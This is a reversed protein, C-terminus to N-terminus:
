TKWRSLRRSGLREPPLTGPVPSWRVDWRWIKVTFSVGYLITLRPEKTLMDDGVRLYLALAFSLAAMVVDHLFAFIARRSQPLISM